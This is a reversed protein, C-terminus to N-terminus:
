ILKSIGLLEKLVALGAEPQDTPVFHGAGRITTFTIGEYRKVFGAIRGGVRWLKYKDTVKYGLQDVFREDGLFDCSLDLDGNYIILKSIKNQTILQQVVQKMTPHQMTYNISEFCSTWTKVKDPIHIAKRVDASNLYSIYGSSECEAKSSLSDQSLQNDYFLRVFPSYRAYFMPPRCDSLVNYPNPMESMINAFQQLLQKCTKSLNETGCLEKTDNTCECGKEVLEAYFDDDIMGHANALEISSKALKAVDLFGNGVAIGILQILYIVSEYSFETIGVSAPTLFLFPGKCAHGFPITLM